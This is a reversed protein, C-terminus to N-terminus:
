SKNKFPLNAIEVYIRCGPLEECHERLKGAEVLTATRGDCYTWIGATVRAGPEPLPSLSRKRREVAPAENTEHRVLEAAADDQIEDALVQFGDAAEEASPEAAALLAM